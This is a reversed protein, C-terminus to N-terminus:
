IGLLARVANIAAEAAIGITADGFKAALYVLTAVVLTKAAAVGIRPAQFLTKGAELERLRQERDEPDLEGYGNDRRVAEYVRDLSEIADRYAASNHNLPVYRDAAPAVGPNPPNTVTGTASSRISPLTGPARAAETQADRGDAGDPTPARRVGLDTAAAETPVSIEARLGEGEVLSLVGPEVLAESSVLSVDAKGALAEFREWGRFTLGLDYEGTGQSVNLLGGKQLERVLYSAGGSDAAGAISAIQDRSFPVEGAPDIGSLMDGIALILCGEQERASSVRLSSWISSLWAGTVRPPGSSRGLGRVKHSLVFRLKRHDPKRELEALGSGTIEFPLCVECDVLTKDGYDRSASQGEVRCIPCAERTTPAM